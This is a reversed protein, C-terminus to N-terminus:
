VAPKNIEQQAQGRDHQINGVYHIGHSYRGVMMLLLRPEGSMEQQRDGTIAGIITDKKGALRDVAGEAYQKAQAATYEEEGQAHEDKGSQKWSASGTLDGITEVATGKLSHYQGTTKNPEGSNNYDSM